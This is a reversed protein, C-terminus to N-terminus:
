SKMLAMFNKRIEKEYYQAFNEGARFKQLMLRTAEAIFTASFRSLNIIPQPDRIGKIGSEGAATRGIFNSFDYAHAVKSWQRYMIEYQVDRKLHSALEQLNKPGGFLSYWEIKRRTKSLNKYEALIVSFQPRSLMKELNGIAKQADAPPEKDWNRLSKDRKMAAQFQKGKTTTPLFSEYLAIKSKVYQLLWSLSRSVYDKDNELIYELAMLAEFTSRLIPEAPTTCSEGILVEFADTMELIHRYLAITALDENEEGTVSTACRILVNTGNNVLEQLLPTIIKLSEKAQTKSFERYLVTELPKTPMLGGCDM